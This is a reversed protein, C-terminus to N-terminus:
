LAPTRMVWEHSLALLLPPCPRQPSNVHLDRSLGSSKLTGQMPVRLRLADGKFYYQSMQLKCGLLSFSGEGGTHTRPISGLNEAFVNILVPDRINQKLNTM